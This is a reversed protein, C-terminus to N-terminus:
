TLVLTAAVLAITAGVLLGDRPRWPQERAFTRTTGSGFGRADMALALRGAHRLAGVLLAFTRGAFQRVVAVPSWGADIGRARRAMGLVAWEEALLPLLRLAALTGYAFRQPVHLRAVLADALDTPDIAALVLVGPLSVVLVRAATLAGARWALGPVPALLANSWCISAAGLGLPWTRRALAQPRLGALPMGLGAVVLLVLLTGMDRTLLGAVAVVVAAALGALPNCRAFVPRGAGSEVARGPTVTM